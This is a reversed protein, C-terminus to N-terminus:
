ASRAAPARELAERMREVDFKRSAWQVEIGVVHGDADLDIVIDECLEFSEASTRPEIDIYAADTEPDYKLKM